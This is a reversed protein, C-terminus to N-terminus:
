LYFPPSYDMVYNMSLSLLLEEAASALNTYIKEAETTPSTSSVHL